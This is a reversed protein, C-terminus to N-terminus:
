TSSRSQAALEAARERIRDEDTIAHWRTARRQGTRRVKGATELERLLTLVQERNGNAQEALVSTTMGDGGSLLLELKGAPVVEAARVPTPRRKRRRSGPSTSAPTARRKPRPESRDVLAERAATLTDIENGLERLRGEISNVMEETFTM